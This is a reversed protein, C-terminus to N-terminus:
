VEVLYVADDLVNDAGNITFVAVIDTGNNIPNEDNHLIYIDKEMDFEKLKEILEHVKM